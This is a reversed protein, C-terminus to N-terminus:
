DHLVGLGTLVVPVAGVRLGLPEPGPDVTYSTRHGAVELTVTGARRTLAVTARTGDDRPPSSPMPWPRESGGLETSGLVLVPLPVLPDDTGPAPELELTMTLDEYRTDPVWYTVGADASRLSLAGNVYLRPEGAALDPPVIPRDPVLRHPRSPAAEDRTVLSFLDRSLPGRKGLRLGGVGGPATGSVWVFADAGVALPSIM